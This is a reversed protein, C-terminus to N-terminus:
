LRKRIDAIFVDTNSHYIELKVADIKKYIEELDEINNCPCIIHNDGFQKVIQLQHDDVHEGFEARRPIAIVKKGAKVGTIIAGTGGHTIVIDCNAIADRFEVRDMFQKCNFYKPKYNTYGTQAMVTETIVGREILEDIKMLMREFPFMQTGLTVFIM